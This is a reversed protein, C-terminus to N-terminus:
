EELELESKLVEAIKRKVLDLSVREEGLEEIRDNVKQCLDLTANTDVNENILLTTVLITLVSVLGDYDVDKLDFDEIQEDKDTM